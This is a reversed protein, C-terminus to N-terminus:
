LYNFLSMKSVQSFSKQAASLVMQQQTLDSIAKAYDTDQVKSLSSKYQLGLDTGTVQLADLERLRSGMTARVGLVTNLGQDLSSFADSLGQRYTASAMANGSPISANLTNVLKNLTDFVSQNVSPTVNFTDGTAPAGQINLQIGNFSIAQGSVFTNGASIPLGTTVDNIDYTTPSTFAIQIANGNYAAANTVTGQSATGTGTNTLASVTQFTGNGSRVRMFIDAGSDTTAIQRSAAAQIKRQVDDGQYVVGTPTTVFPQVKGQSGSFLYNGAADTSNALGMLEQIRGSIDTALAKRAVDNLQGSGATTTVDKADLLLNTVSQLISEAFSLTNTAATRNSALQTNAGDAQTLESALAAGAPDDAPTLIRRGTAAQQNTRALDVTLQNMTNISETYFTSTSIRM